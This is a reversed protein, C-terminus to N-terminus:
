PTATAQLAAAVEAVCARWGRRDPQRFLRMGAYWPSDSRATLWRWDPVFPLLVWVPCGIAGALHAVSTDVTILLDLTSLLAATDAFDVLGAGADFPRSAEPLAQLEAARPGKQLSIFRLGQVPPPMALLQQLDALALSRKGDRAHTPSGGWVLGIKMAGAPKGTEAPWAQWYRLKDPAAALYPAAQPMNDLRLGLVGPVSMMPVWADFQQWDVVSAPSLVAEAGALSGLLAVLEPKVLLTVRAGMRQLDNAYRCFQIQDGFGQEHLLLLRLGAPDGGAWRPVPLQPLAMKQVTALKPNFRAEYHQWGAEFDGLLLEILALDFEADADTPDNGLVASFVAGAEDFRGQMKLIIGLNYQASRINKDNFIALRCCAEAESLHGQAKLVLALNSLTSARTPSLTLAHRYYGAAEEMRNARKHAVGINNLAEVLDSARHLIQRVQDRAAELNGARLLQELHTIRGGPTSVPM